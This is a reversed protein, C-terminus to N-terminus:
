CGTMHWLDNGLQVTSWYRRLGPSVLSPRTGRKSEWISKISFGKGSPSGDLYKFKFHSRWNCLLNTKDNKFMTKITSIPRNWTMSIIGHSLRSIIINGTPNLTKINPDSQVINENEIISMMYSKVFIRDFNRALILNWGSWDGTLAEHTIDPLLTKFFCMISIQLNSLLIYFGKRWPWGLSAVDSNKSQTVICPSYTPRSMNLDPMPFKPYIYTTRDMCATWSEWRRMGVSILKWLKLKWRAREKRKSRRRITKGVDHEGTPKLFYCCFRITNNKKERELQLRQVAVVECLFQVLIIIFIFILQTEPQLNAKPVQRLM